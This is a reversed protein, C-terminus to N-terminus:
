SESPSQEEQGEEQKPEKSEKQEAQEERKEETEAVANTEQGEEKAAEANEAPAAEEKKVASAVTFHTSPGLESGSQVSGDEQVSIYHGAAKASEFSVCGEAELVKLESSEDCLEVKEESVSLYKEGHQLTVVHGSESDKKSVTFQASEGEEGQAQLNSVCNFRHSAVLM